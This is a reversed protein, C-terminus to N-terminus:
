KEGKSKVYEKIEKESFYPEYRLNLLDIVGKNKDKDEYYLKLLTRCFIKENIEPNVQSSIKLSNQIKIPLKLESILISSKSNSTYNYDSQIMIKFVNPIYELIESKMDTIEIEEILNYTTSSTNNSSSMSHTATLRDLDKEESILILKGVNINQKYGDSFIATGSDLVIKKDRELINFDEKSLTIQMWGTNHNYYKGKDVNYQNVQIPFSIEPFELRTLRRDENSNTIYHIQLFEHKNLHIMEEYYHKFFIPEAIRQRWAYLGNVILLVIIVVCGILVHKSINSNM